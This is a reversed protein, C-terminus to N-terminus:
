ITSQPDTDAIVASPALAAPYEVPRQVGRVGGAFGHLTPSSRAILAHRRPQSNKRVWIIYSSGFASRMM